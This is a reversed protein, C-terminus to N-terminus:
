RGERLRRLEAALEQARAEAADARATEAQARAAEAQARAAEAEARAAEAEARATESPLTPIHQGTSPDQWGLYRNGSRLDLNLVTSHGQLVGPAIEYIEIAEYKGDVLRYGRLIFGYFRGDRDYLWYEGVGMREYYDMKGALDDSATRRSAVELIFDPPKGQESVIYGNSAEYADPDAGFAVLLDPYRSEGAVYAPGPVVYHEASVITTDSNGLRQAINAIAGYQHLSDVSTMDDPHKEPIDPLRFFPRAPAVPASPKAPRSTTM